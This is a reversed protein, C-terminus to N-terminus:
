GGLRNKRNKDRSFSCASLRVKMCISEQNGAENTSLKCREIGTCANDGLHFKKKKRLSLGIRNM